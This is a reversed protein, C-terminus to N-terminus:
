PGEGNCPPLLSAGQARCSERCSRLLPILNPFTPRFSAQAEWCNRLLRSVECPCGGPVPLRGGRELLELLRLVTVQGQAPGLLELFKAPPSRSPDCHTLLEYLTVGFSWVDSSYSFKGEKLCEPAYWFVPSASDQCVRYYDQGWPVAKALGFDGLKVWAESLLLVNRAALDRHILRLSHVYAMAECIQQAFLLLQALGLPHRPLFERLSGLPVYEMVLQVEPDGHQGCCGRYTVINQHCLSSLIHIERAWSSHLQPSSDAKLRKVAVLEGSGDNSPDYLCLSVQGFHGEGLDRIKKLYRKQFVTPDATPCDPSPMAVDQLQHPQLRSLERLVARFCPREEPSYSLCQSILSALAPCSPEPFRQRQEYFQEKESPTSHGLPVHGDCCMELLTSGFSWKDAAPSLAGVDRLCEPALWPVRAVREERSLVTLSLGPDSLKVLPESGEELGRRALLMNRACVNGHVLKKDELYCLASALQQAVAVKWRLPVRGRARRLFVDVPGQDLLEQVLINESGRVCVGHVFALHVHSVHSMLSASEFFALTVDRHGPDLVKLVVRTDTGQGEEEEEEEEEQGEGERARLLGLYINTRTGHGLHAGQSIHGARIQQFSLQGLNLQQQQQQQEGRCILLESVEAPRPLCCHLLSCHQLGWHLTCGRLARLLQELSPFPRGWGELLFSDGRQQIRFQQLQSNEPSQPPGPSLVALIIRHFDLVSWRLLFLGERPQQQQLKALVFEEGLPGHVGCQASLLLRPPAVDHCLFHSSDTTLRFYGDLLSVLSLASGPSQLIVDLCKTDQRHVRVRSEAVEVHTIDGFDCFRSWPPEQRPSLGPCGRSRGRSRGGSPEPVTDGPTGLHGWSGVQPPLARWLVGATGSVRLQHTGTGPAADPGDGAAAAVRLALLPFTETGFAPGLHELAALYRFMVDGPSLAAAHRQFRRLFRGFLRRLRLRTLAPGHRLHRRFSAPLCTEFSYKKAVQPLAVGKELALHALHLVAMGLSESQFKEPDEHEQLSVVDHLFDFKAQRFLYSLSAWDLLPAGPRPRGGGSASNRLIRPESSSLGHWNRFYFRMRFRLQLEAGGPIRQNPPLWLSRQPDWLAFLSCCVPSIGLSQALEMCIEEASFSGQAYVRCRGRGEDDGDDGDDDDEDEEEEHGAWHLLVRLGRPSGEAEARLRRRCLAM